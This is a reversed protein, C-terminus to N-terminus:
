GIQSREIGGKMDLAMFVKGKSGDGGGAKSQGWRIRYCDRVWFLEELVLLVLVGVVFGDMLMLDLRSM